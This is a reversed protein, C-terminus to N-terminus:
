VVRVPETGNDGVIHIMMVERVADTKRWVSYDLLDFGLANKTAPCVRMWVRDQNGALVSHFQYPSNMM